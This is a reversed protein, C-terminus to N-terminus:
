SLLSVCVSKEIYIRCVTEVNLSRFALIILPATSLVQRGDGRRVVSLSHLCGGTKLTHSIQKSTLGYWLVCSVVLQHGSGGMYILM